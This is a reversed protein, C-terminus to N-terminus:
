VELINYMIAMEMAPRNTESLLTWIEKTYDNMGFDDQSDDMCYLDVFWLRLTM